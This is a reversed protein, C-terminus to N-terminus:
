APVSYRSYRLKVSLLSWVSKSRAGHSTNGKTKPVESALTGSWYVLEAFQGKVESDVKACQDERSGIHKEILFVGRHNL